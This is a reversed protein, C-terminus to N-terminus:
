RYMKSMSVGYGKFVGESVGEDVQFEFIIFETLMIASIVIKGKNYYCAGLTRVSRDSFQVFGCM